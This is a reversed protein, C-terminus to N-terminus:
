SAGWSIGPFDVTSSPGTPMSTTATTRVELVGDTRLQVEGFQPAPGGFHLSCSIVLNWPPPNIGAPLNGLAVYTTGINVAAGNRQFRGPEIYSTGGRTSARPLHGLTPVGWGTAATLTTWEVDIGTLDWIEEVRDSVSGALLNLLDDAPSAPETGTYHWIGNADLAM